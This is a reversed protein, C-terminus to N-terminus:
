TLEYVFRYTYSHMHVYRAQVTSVATKKCASLMFEWEIKCWIMGERERERHKIIFVMQKEENKHM